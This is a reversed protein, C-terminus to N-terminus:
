LSGKGHGARDDEVARDLADLYDARSKAVAAVDYKNKNANAKLHTSDSYLVTGDVLGHGIAQVVIEDFIEQYVTSEAFRWRRNQSLTSADPVPDTLRFDLFWRYTVNVAIERM